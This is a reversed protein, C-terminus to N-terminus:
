MKRLQGAFKVVAAVLVVMPEVVVAEVLLSSAWRHFM